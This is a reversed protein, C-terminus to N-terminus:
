LIVNLEARKTNHECTRTMFNGENTSYIGKKLTEPCVINKLVSETLICDCFILWSFRQLM